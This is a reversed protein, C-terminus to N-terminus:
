ILQAFSEAVGDYEVGPVFLDTGSVQPMVYGFSLGLHNGDEFIATIDQNSRDLGVAWASTGLSLLAAASLGLFKM